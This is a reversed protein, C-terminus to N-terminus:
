PQSVLKFSSRRQCRADDMQFVRGHVGSLVSGAPVLPIRNPVDYPPGGANPTDDGNRAANLELAQLNAGLATALASDPM